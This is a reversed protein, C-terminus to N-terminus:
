NLGYERKWLVVIDDLSPWFRKGHSVGKYLTLLKHIRANKLSCGKDTQRLYHKSVSKSFRMCPPLKKYVIGLLVGGWLLWQCWTWRREKLDDWLWILINNMLSGLGFLLWVQFHLSDGWGGGKHSGALMHFECGAKFVVYQWGTYTFM